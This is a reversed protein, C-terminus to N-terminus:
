IHILSRNPTLRVRVETDPAIQDPPAVQYSYCGGTVFLAGLVVIKSLRM